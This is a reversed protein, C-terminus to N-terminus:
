VQRQVKTNWHPPTFLHRPLHTHQGQWPLQKGEEGNTDTETPKPGM